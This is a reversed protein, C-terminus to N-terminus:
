TGRTAVSSYRKSRKGENPVFQAFVERVRDAPTADRTFRPETLTEVARPAYIASQYLSGDFRSDSESDRLCADSVFLLIFLASGVVYFYQFIPM